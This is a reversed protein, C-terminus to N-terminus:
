DPSSTRADLLEHAKARLRDTPLSEVWGRDAHDLQKQQNVWQELAEQQLHGSTFIGVLRAFEAPPPPEYLTGFLMRNRALPPQAAIAELIKDRETPTAGRYAQHTLLGAFDSSYIGHSGTDALTAMLNEATPLGRARAQLMYARDYNAGPSGDPVTAIFEAAREPHHKMLMEFFEERISTGGIRNLYALFSDHRKEAADEMLLRVGSLHEHSRAKIGVEFIEEDPFEGIRPTTYAGWALDRWGHPGIRNLLATIESQNWPLDAAADRIIDEVGDLGPLRELLKFFAVPDRDALDRLVARAGDLNGERLLRRVEASTSEERHSKQGSAPRDSASTEGVTTSGGTKRAAVTIGLFLAFVALPLFKPPLKM